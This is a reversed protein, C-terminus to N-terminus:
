FFKAFEINLIKNVLSELKKTMNARIQEKKNKMMEKKEDDSFCIDKKKKRKRNKQKM